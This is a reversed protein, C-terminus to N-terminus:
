AHTNQPFEEETRGLNTGFTRTPAQRQPQALVLSYHIVTGIEAKSFFLRSAANLRAKSGITTNAPAIM